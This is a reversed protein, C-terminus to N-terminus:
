GCSKRFVRVENVAYHYEVLPLDGELYLQGVLDARYWDRSLLALGGSVPVNSEDVYYRRLGGAGEFFGDEDLDFIFAYRVADGVSLHDAIGSNFPDTISEITGRLQVLMPMARVADLPMMLVTTLMAVAALVRKRM